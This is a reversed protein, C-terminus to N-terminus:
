DILAGAKATVHGIPEERMEHLLSTFRPHKQTGIQLTTPATALVAWMCLVNPFITRTGRLCWSCWGPESHVWVTRIYDSRSRPGSRRTVQVAAMDAWSRDSALHMNEERFFGPHIQSLQERLAQVGCVSGVCNGLLMRWHGHYEHVCSCPCLHWKATSVLRRAPM